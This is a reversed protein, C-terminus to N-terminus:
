EAPGALQEAIAWFAARDKKTLAFLEELEGFDYTSLKVFV